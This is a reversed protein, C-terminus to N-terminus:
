DYIGGSRARANILTNSQILENSGQQGDRAAAEDLKVKYLNWLDAQLQRNETLPICADAAIRAALTQIFMPSFKGTDTVQKIGWLYITAYSSVINGGEMRWNEDRINDGYANVSKFVRFVSIWNLPKPHVYMTGWADMDETVDSAKVTAFTWMREELLADRIFPYNNRMWEATTNPDTLSTIPDQGLWTLAQNCISTESVMAQNSQTAM